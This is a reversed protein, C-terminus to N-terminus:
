VGSEAVPGWAARLRAAEVGESTEISASALRSGRREAVEARVVARDGLRLEALFDVQLSRLVPAGAKTPACCELGWAVTRIHNVHDNVDLDRAGVELELTRDVRGIAPLKAWTEELARPRDPRAVEAVSAPIRVARRRRRSMVFWTSTARVWPQKTEADEVEFDRVVFFSRVRAPWTSVRASRGSRPWGPWELELRGLVWTLGQAHLDEISIANARANRGAAEQLWGCLAPVAVQSARSAEADGVRFVGTWSEAM